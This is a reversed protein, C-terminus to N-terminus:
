SELVSKEINIIFKMVQFKTKTFCKILDWYKVRLDWTRFGLKNFRNGNNISTITFSKLRFISKIVNAFLTYDM